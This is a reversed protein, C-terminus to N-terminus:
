VKSGEQFHYGPATGKLEFVTESLDAVIDLESGRFNGSLKLSGSEMQAVVTRVVDSETGEQNWITELLTM